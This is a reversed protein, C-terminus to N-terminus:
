SINCQFSREASASGGLKIVPLTEGLNGSTPMFVGPMSIMHVIKSSLGKELSHKM